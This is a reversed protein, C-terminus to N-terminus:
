FFRIIDVTNTERNISSLYTENGWEKSCYGTLATRISKLDFDGVPIQAKGGIPLDKIYPAFHATLAGYPYLREKKPKKASVELEGFETGDEIIIKYQAKAADLLAIAKKVALTDVSM